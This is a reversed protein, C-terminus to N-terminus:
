CEKRRIVSLAKSVCSALLSQSQQTKSVKSDIIYNDICLFNGEWVRRLDACLPSYSQNMLCCLFPQGKFEGRLGFAGSRPELQNARYQCSEVITRHHEEVLQYGEDVVYGPTDIHTDIILLNTLLNQLRETPSSQALLLTGLLFQMLIRPIRM